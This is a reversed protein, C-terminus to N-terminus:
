ARGASAHTSRAPATVDNVDGADPAALEWLEVFFEDAWEPPPADAPIALEDRAFAKAYRQTLAVKADVDAADLCVRAAEFLTTM